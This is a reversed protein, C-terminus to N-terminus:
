TRWEICIRDENLTIQLAADDGVFHAGPSGDWEGNISTYPVGGRVPEALAGPQHALADAMALMSRLAVKRRWADKDADTM